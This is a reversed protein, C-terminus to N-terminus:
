PELEYGHYNIHGLTKEILCLKTIYVGEAENQSIPLNCCFLTDRSFM